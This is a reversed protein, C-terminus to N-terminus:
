LLLENILPRHSQFRHEIAKKKLWPSFKCARQATGRPSTHSGEEALAARLIILAADGRREREACERENASM